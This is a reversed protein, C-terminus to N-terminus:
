SSKKTQAAPTAATGTAGSPPPAAAALSTNLTELNTENAEVTTLAATLSTVATQVAPDESAASGQLAAIADNITTTLAALDAAQQTAFNQFATVFAQLATLGPQTAMAIKRVQLTLCVQSLLLLVAVILLGTLM